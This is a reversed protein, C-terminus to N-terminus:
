LSRDYSSGHMEGIIVLKYKDIKTNKIDYIKNYTVCKENIIIGMIFKGGKYILRVSRLIIMYLFYSINICRLNIIMIIAKVNVM